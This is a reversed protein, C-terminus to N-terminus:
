WLDVASRNISVISLCYRLPPKGRLGHSVMSEIAPALKSVFLLSNIANGKAGSFNTVVWLDGLM